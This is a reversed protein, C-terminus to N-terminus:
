GAPRAMVANVKPGTDHTPLESLLSHPDPTRFILDGSRHELSGDDVVRGRIVFPVDVTRAATHTPTM